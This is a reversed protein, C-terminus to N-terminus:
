RAQEWRDLVADLRAVPISPLYPQVDRVMEALADGAEQQETIRYQMDEIGHAQLREVKAELERLRAGIVADVVAVMLRRNNEPVDEWPVASEPRTTYGYDPALREYTDHFQRALDDAALWWLGCSGCTWRGPTMADRTQDTSGCRPCAALDTM